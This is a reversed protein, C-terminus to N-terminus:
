RDPLVLKQEDDPVSVSRRSVSPDEGPSLISDAHTNMTIGDGYHERVVDRLVKVVMPNKCVGGTFTFQDRVGGSRALLSMARLLIAKHLGALIDERRQGLALRERLEAGAFVTCTSNVRVIKQAAVM